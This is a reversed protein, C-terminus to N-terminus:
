RSASSNRLWVTSDPAAATTEGLYVQSRANRNKYANVHLAKGRSGSLFGTSLTHEGIWICVYSSILTIQVWVATSFHSYKSPSDEFFPLLFPEVRSKFTPQISFGGERALDVVRSTREALCNVGRKLGVLM